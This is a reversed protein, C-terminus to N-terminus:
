KFLKAVNLDKPLGLAAAVSRCKTRLIHFVPRFELESLAEFNAMGKSIILDCNELQKQLEVPINNISMGVAYVGTTIIENVINNLGINVAEILTADSLISEGKVVVTIKVDYDMLVECLLKDFVIEGCNDTFFLINAGTKLYPEMMDVDDIGLGENYIRDFDDLLEKPESVGGPIGFDLVNGVISVLVATRLRDNKNSTTILKRSRDELQLGVNMAMDKIEKYPDVYDLLEYTKRHIKTALEASCQDTSFEDGLIKCAEKMIM